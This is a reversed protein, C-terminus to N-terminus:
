QGIQRQVTVFLTVSNVGGVQVFSNSASFSLRGVIYTLSQTFNHSLQIGNSSETSGDPKPSVFISYAANYSLSPRGLFRSDLYNINGVGGWTM